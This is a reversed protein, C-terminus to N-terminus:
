RRRRRCRPCPRRPRPPSATGRRSRRGARAAGAWAAGNGGPVASRARRRSGCECPRRGASRPTWGRGRDGGDGGALEALVQQKAQVDDLEGERRQPLPGVPDLQGVCRRANKARCIPLFISPNVGSARSASSRYASAPCGGRAACRWRVPRSRRRRGTPRGSRGAWAADDLGVELRRPGPRQSRLRGARSRSCSSASCMRSQGRIAAGAALVRGADQADVGAREIALALLQPQSFSVPVGRSQGVASTVPKLDYLFVDTDKYHFNTASSASATNVADHGPPASEKRGREGQPRDRLIEVTSRERRSSGRREDDCATGDRWRTGQM